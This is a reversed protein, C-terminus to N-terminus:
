SAIGPLPYTNVLEVIVTVDCSTATGPLPYTHVLREVIVTVDCSTATGPLPYTHVLEVIVTVHERNCLKHCYRATSIYASARSDSHCTRQQM